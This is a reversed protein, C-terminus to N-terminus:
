RVRTSFLSFLKIKLNSILPQVANSNNLMILVKKGAPNKFAVNPLNALMNSAIRVSGPRVFKAAHAITYYVM